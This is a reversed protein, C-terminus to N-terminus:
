AARPRQGAWREARLNKYQVHGRLRNKSAVGSPVFAVQMDGGDMAATSSAKLATPHLVRAGGHPKPCALRLGVLWPPGPLKTKPM